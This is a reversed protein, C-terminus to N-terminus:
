SAFRFKLKEKVRFLLFGSKDLATYYTVKNLLVPPKCREIQAYITRETVRMLLVLSRLSGLLCNKKPSNTEHAPMKMSSFAASDCATSVKRAQRTLLDLNVTSTHLLRSPSPSNSAMIRSITIQFNGIVQTKHTFCGMPLLSKRTLILLITTRFGVTAASKATIFSNKHASGMDNKERADYGSRIESMVLQGCAGNRLKLCIVM